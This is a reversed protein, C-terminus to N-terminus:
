PGYVGARRAADQMAVLERNQEELQQQLFAERQLQRAQYQYPGQYQAGGGPAQNLSSLRDIRAQLSAIRQEQAAIRARWMAGARQLAQDRAAAVRETGRDESPHSSAAPTSEAQAQSEPTGPPNAPLDANTFVRPQTGSAQEAQQKDRNARAVDGLSQTQGQAAGTMLAGIIAFNWFIRRM